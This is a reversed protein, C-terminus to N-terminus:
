EGAASAFAFTPTVSRCTDQNLGTENLAITGVVNTAEDSATDNAAQLLGFADPANVLTWNSSGCAAPWTPTVTVEGVVQDFAAPNVAKVVIDASPGGPYLGAIPTTQSLQIADGEATTGSTASGSGSGSTTWYAYAVGTGAVGLAGIALAAVTKQKRNLTRM